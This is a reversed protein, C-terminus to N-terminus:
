FLIGDMLARLRLIGTRLRVRMPKSKESVVRTPMMSVLFYNSVQVCFVVLAFSSRSHEALSIWPSWFIVVLCAFAKFLVLSSM